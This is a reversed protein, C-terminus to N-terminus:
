NPITRQLSSTIVVKRACDGGAAPTIEIVVDLEVGAQEALMIAENLEQAKAIADILLHIRESSEKFTSSRKTM